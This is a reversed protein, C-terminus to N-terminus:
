LSDEDVDKASQWLSYEQPISEQLFRLVHDGVAESSNKKLAEKVMAQCDEFSLERILHKIWPISGANM